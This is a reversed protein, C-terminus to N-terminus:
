GARRKHAARAAKRKKGGCQARVVTRFGRIEGNHADFNVLARNKRRCLDTSNQILGKKGGQMTLVFTSVPADPVTEFTNRIRGKGFSDIRGVLDIAIKGNKMAAVLDPLKHESSRLYVPGEIPEDLLPTVARAYGYISAQPCSGQAYQVRTCVTRIHSQDLFASRPLAVRAKSINSEGETMRLVARFKPNGGRRTAGLLRLGLRPNFDLAACDAAQFRTSVTVPEDDDPDVFDLGAGLVTSATSTAECSTPNLVFNPRDVYIRVDRIKVPIGDLIHPLSDSGTADIFVEATEPDIRMALRQVVNGVDFPGIKAATISVVSLPSGNYPGALYVKGPVYAQVPGVGGGALTRGVETAAPCSPDALEEAGTRNRSAAVASDPCFPIGALKGTVGPPLKISFHRIEQEGDNRFLRLNFPSHSGAANNVTGAV